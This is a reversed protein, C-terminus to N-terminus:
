HYFYKCSPDSCPNSWDCFLKEEPEIFKDKIKKIIEEEDLNLLDDRNIQLKKMISFIKDEM